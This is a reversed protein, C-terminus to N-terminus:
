QQVERWQGRTATKLLVADMVGDDLQALPCARMGKGFHQTQNVFSTLLKGEVVEDDLEVTVSESCM